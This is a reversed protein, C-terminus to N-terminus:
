ISFKFVEADKGDILLGQPDTDELCDICFSNGKARILNGRTHGVIQPVGEVPEFEQNWDCWYLGGHGYSGGRYRGIQMFDGAALYDPLTSNYHELFLQSVGAHSILFDGEWIYPQLKAYMENKLHIVHSETAYSWGGCRSWSELYSLEHNGILAQHGRDVASLVIKLTEVQDIVSRTFSDLYDGIFIVKWNEKEAIELAKQAIRLQGHLDGIVLKM